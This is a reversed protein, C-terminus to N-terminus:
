RVVLVANEEQDVIVIDGSPLVAIANPRNLGAALPGQVIGSRGLVGIPTTVTGTTDIRRITGNWYDAAYLNGAGDGAMGLLNNFQAATGVGDAAGVAPGAVTTVNADVLTLKRVAYGTAVFVNGKGDAVIGTPQYFRASAGMGDQHGGAGALGAVTTVEGTATTLRRVTNNLYDTIYVHDPGDAAVGIPFYFRAASGVGDASGIMQAAGAAVTLERTAIVLKRITHNGSDAVYLNGAGDFSVSTPRVLGAPTTWMTTVEGTSPVIRRIAGNCYDTVYVNGDADSTAGGAIRQTCQLSFRAASGVGDVLGSVLPSGAFTTVDGTTPVVRRITHGSYETVYLNGDADITAATPRNFRAAIGQGDSSGAEGARGAIRTVTGTALSISRVTHNGTDTVYLNGTGEAAVGNPSNFRASEGIGDVTGSAGALGAVTTTEGSPVLLKRITHNATDAVYLTGPPGAAVGNPGNFRAGAGTGDAGGAIGAAGALTVVDGTAITVVRITHNGSDAVYLKGTGDAVMGKPHLFRAEPGRGDAIGFMGPTGALTSVQATAIVVRRITHNETDSIFLNGAGDTVMGSHYHVTSFGFRAEPGRGDDNGLAGGALFSVKRDSIGLKRITQNCDAVFLNGAGDATIGVPMNFRAATGVGDINGRGGPRGALVTLVKPHSGADGAETGAADSNPLTEPGATDMTTGTDTGTGADTTTSTDTATEPERDVATETVHDMAGGSDTATEPERDTGEGRDGSVDSRSGADGGAGVSTDREFKHFCGGAAVACLAGWVALM